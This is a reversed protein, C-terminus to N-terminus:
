SARRESWLREVSALPSDIGKRLVLDAGATRLKRALSVGVSASLVVLLPREPRTGLQAVLEIEGGPMHLDTMVLDPEHEDIAALLQDGSTVAAAVTWRGGDTFLECLSALVDPEDDALVIRRPSVEPQVM